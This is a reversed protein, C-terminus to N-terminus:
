LFEFVLLNLYITNFLLLRTTIIMPSKICIADWVMTSGVMIKIIYMYMWYKIHGSIYDRHITM